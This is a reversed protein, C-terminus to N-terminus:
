NANETPSVSEKPPEPAQVPPEAPTAPVKPTQTLGIYKLAMLTIDDAQETDGVFESFDLAIHHTIGEPGYESVYKKFLEILGEVKFMQGENNQAETIGDTYLVIVDGIELPIKQEKVIKSNDPTMGLAIGGSEISEVEGTKARYVLIHEHGSGVYTMKQTKHDWRLMVMTMFMSSKIRPKLQRNTNVVIDYTSKYMETYTHLLTNVMMMVLAAPAGHGTVDGIYFYTADKAPIYDFSDGGIEVAPRTKTVVELGPVQPSQKPLLQQQIEAAINLESSMRSEEKLKKSIVELNETIENFFQAIIGIEDIRNTSIRKYSKGTLILKMQKTLKKLPRNVLKFFLFSVIFFFGALGILSYVLPFNMTLGWYYYAAGGAFASLILLILAFRRTIKKRFWTFM